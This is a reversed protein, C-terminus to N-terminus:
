EIASLLLCIIKNKEGSALMGVAKSQLHRRNDGLTPLPASVSHLQRHHPRQQGKDCGVVKHQM